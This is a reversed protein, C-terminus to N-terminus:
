KVFILTCIWCSVMQLEVLQLGTLILDFSNSKNTHKITIFASRDDFKNLQYSTIKELNMNMVKRWNSAGDETLTLLIPNSHRKPSGKCWTIDVLDRGDKFYWKLSFFKSDIHYMYTIKAFVLTCIWCSVICHKVIVTACNPFSLIINIQKNIWNNTIFM